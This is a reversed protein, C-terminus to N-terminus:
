FDDLTIDIHCLEHLKCNEYSEVLETYGGIFIEKAFIQPFTHHNTKRILTEKDIEYTLSSPDYHIIDYPINKETLFLKAMECYKCGSKTHLTLM